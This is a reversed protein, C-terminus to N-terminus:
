RRGAEVSEVIIRMAEEAVVRFADSVTQLSLEPDLRHESWAAKLYELVEAPPFSPLNKILEKISEQELGTAALASELIAGSLAYNETDQIQLTIAQIQSPTDILLSATDSILEIASTITADQLDLNTASLLFPQEPVSYFEEAALLANTIENAVMRAIFPHELPLSSPEAADAAYRLRLTDPNVVPVNPGDTFGAYMVSSDDVMYVRQRPPGAIERLPQLLTSVTNYDVETLSIEGTIPVFLKIETFDTRYLSQSPDVLDAFATGRLLPWMQSLNPM